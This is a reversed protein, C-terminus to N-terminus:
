PQRMGKCWSRDSRRHAARLGAFDGHEIRRCIAHQEDLADHRRTPLHHGQTVPMQEDITHRKLHAARRRAFLKAFPHRFQIEGVAATRRDLLNTM